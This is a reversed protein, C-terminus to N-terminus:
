DYAVTTGVSCSSLKQSAAVLVASSDELLLHVLPLSQKKPPILVFKQGRAFPSFWLRLPEESLLCFDGQATNKKAVHFTQGSDLTPPSAKFMKDVPFMLQQPLPKQLEPATRLFLTGLLFTAGHTTLVPLQNWSLRLALRQWGSRLRRFFSLLM